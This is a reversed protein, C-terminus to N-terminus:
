SHPVQCVNYRSAWKECTIVKTGENGEFFLGAGNQDVYRWGEKEMKAIMRKNTQSPSTKSIYWDASQYTGLQVLEDSSREVKLVASIPKVEKAPFDLNSVYAVLLLIGAITIGVIGFLMKKM